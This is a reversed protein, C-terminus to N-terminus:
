GRPARFAPASRISSSSTPLSSGATPITMCRRPDRPPIAMAASNSKKLDLAGLNLYVSAAGPGGNFSFTVPRTAGPVTYATYVVEGTTKGAADKLTVSGVTVVYDLRKGAIVAAKTSRNRQLFLSSIRIPKAVAEKASKGTTDSGREAGCSCGRGRVFRLACSVSRRCSVGAISRMM